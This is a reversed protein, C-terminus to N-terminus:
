QLDPVEHRSQQQKGQVCCSRGRHTQESSVSEQATWEVFLRLLLAMSHPWAKM